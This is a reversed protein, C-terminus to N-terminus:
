GGFSRFDVTYAGGSRVAVAKLPGSMEHKVLGVAPGIEVRVGPYIVKHVIIVGKCTKKNEEEFAEMRQDIATLRKKAAEIEAAIKKLEENPKGRCSQLLIKAKPMLQSIKKTLADKEQNLHNLEREVFPNIAARALTPVNSNSGLVPLEINGAATVRGGHVAGKALTIAGRVNVDAHVIESDVNVDGEVWVSANSVYKATLTNKVEIVAKDKGAIGRKISLSGGCIVRAGEIVGEVNIDHGSKVEFLDKISGKINIDGNFQINGTEFDVDTEINLVQSVFLKGGELHVEGECKANFTVGDAQCEVNDGAELTFEEIEEPPIEEGLVNKGPQGQVAPHLVGITEGAKVLALGSCSYFSARDATSSEETIKHRKEPDLHDAWEFFGEQGAKPPTAKALTFRREPLEPNELLPLIDQIRQKVQENVEVHKDGLAVILDNSDLANEPKYQELDLIVETEDPNIHIRWAM